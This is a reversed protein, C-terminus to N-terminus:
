AAREAAVMAVALRRGLEPGPAGLGEIQALTGEYNRLETRARAGLWVDIDWALQAHRAEDAAIRGFLPRWRPDAHKSKFLAAAAGLAERSGEVANDIAIADLERLPLPRVRVRPVRIGFTRAVDRAHRVEDRAAARARAALDPAGHHDLERALRVFAPVSAAELWAAETAWKRIPSRARSRFTHLAPPRRGLCLTSTTCAVHTDDLECADITEYYKAGACNALAGCAEECPTGGDTDEATDEAILAEFPCEEAWDRSDLTELIPCDTCDQWPLCSCGPGLVVMAIVSAIELRM